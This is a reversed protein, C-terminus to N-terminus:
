PSVECGTPPCPRTPKNLCDVPGYPGRPYDCLRLEWHGSGDTGIVYVPTWRQYVGAPSPALLECGTLVLLLLPWLRRM